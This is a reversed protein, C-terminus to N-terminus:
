DGFEPDSKQKQSTGLSGDYDYGNNLYLDGLKVMLEDDSLGKSGNEATKPASAVSVDNQYKVVDLPESSGKSSMEEMSERNLQERGQEEQRMAEYRETKYEEFYDAYHPYKKSLYRIDNEWCDMNDLRYKFKKKEEDTIEPVPEPEPIAMQVVQVQNEEIAEYVSEKTYKESESDLRKGMAHRKKGYIDTFHYQYDSGRKRTKIEISIGQQKCWEKFEDFSEPESGLIDDLRERLDDKWVYEGVERVYEENHSKDDRYYAKKGALVNDINLRELITDNTKAVHFHNKQENKLSKGDILNSQNIVIHNHILGSEGDNQTVVIVQHNPYLENALEYGAENARQLSNVDNPDLEDKSFTQIVHLGQVNDEKGLQKIYDYMENRANGFSCNLSSFYAVRENSLSHFYEGYRTGQVYDILGKINKTQIVKTTSM